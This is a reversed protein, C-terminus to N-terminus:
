KCDPKPADNKNDDKKDSIKRKKKKDKPDEDSEDSDDDNESNDDNDHDGKKSVGLYYEISYVIAEDYLIQAIELDADM